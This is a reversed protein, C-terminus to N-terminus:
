YLGSAGGAVGHGPFGSIGKSLSLFCSSVVSFEGVKSV